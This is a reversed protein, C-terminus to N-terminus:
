KELKGYVCQCSTIFNSIASWGGGVNVGIGGKITANPYTALFNSWSLPSSNPAGTLHTGWVDGGLTNWSQWTNPTVGTSQLYPELNLTSYTVGADTGTTNGPNIEIQLIPDTTVNDTYTSYGLATIDSLKTGIHDYNYVSWHDATGTVTMQLSGVGLPPTAPGFTLSVGGLGGSQNLVVFQGPAPSGTVLDSSSVIVTSGKSAWASSPVAVSLVLMVAAGVIASIVKRM